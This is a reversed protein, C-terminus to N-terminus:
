LDPYAGLGDANDSTTALVDCHEGNGTAESTEKAGVEIDTLSIGPIPAAFVVQGQLQVTGTVDTALAGSAWTLAGLVVIWLPARKM